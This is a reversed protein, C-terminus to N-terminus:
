TQDATCDGPRDPINIRVAQDTGIVRIQGGQPFGAEVAHDVSCQSGDFFQGGTIQDKEARRDGEITLVHGGQRRKYLFFHDQCIYAAYLAADMFCDASQAQGAMEDASMGHGATFPGAVAIGIGGQQFVGVVQQCRFRFERFFGSDPHIVEYPGQAGQGQCDATLLMVEGGSGDAMYGMDNGSGQDVQDPVTVTRVFDHM